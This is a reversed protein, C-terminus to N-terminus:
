ALWRTSLAALLILERLEVAAGIVDGTLGGLRDRWSAAWGISFAGAGCLGVVLPTILGPAIVLAPTVLLSASVVAIGADLPQLEGSLRAYMGRGPTAPGVLLMEAPLFARSAVCAIWIAPGTTGAEVTAALLVVKALMALMTGAAGIAGARPDHMVELTRAADGNCHLGDLCDSLGDVHLAGTAWFMAAVAAIAGLLPGHSLSGVFMAFIAASAVFTGALPFWRTARGWDGPAPATPDLPVRTLFTLGLRLGNM